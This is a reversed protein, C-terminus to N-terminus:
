RFIEKGFPWVAERSRRAGGFFAYSKSVEDDALQNESLKIFSHGEPSYFDFNKLALDIKRRTAKGTESYKSKFPLFRWAM